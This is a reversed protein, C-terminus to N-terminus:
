TPFVTLGMAANGVVPLASPDSIIMRWLAPSPPPRNMKEGGAAFLVHSMSLACKSAFLACHPAPPAMLTQPATVRRAELQLMERQLAEPPPPPNARPSPAVTSRESLSNMPVMAPATAADGLPAPDDGAATAAAGVGM